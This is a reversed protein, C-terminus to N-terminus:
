FNFVDLKGDAISFIEDSNNAIFSRDHSIFFFGGPFNELLEDLVELSEIDLHNTPEDMFLFEVKSLIAKVIAARMLEGRSLESIKRMVTERRLKAAGLFQRVTTEDTDEFGFNDILIEYTFLESVTQPIYLYKIDGNLSVTGKEVKLDDLICRMFTTKGSGNPGILAVRDKTRLEFSADEIIKKEGYSFSIDRVMVMNRDVVEYKPFALNLKKEVFPKTDRLKEVEKEKRHQASLARKMMKAAQAGIHGRDAGKTGVGFKEKERSNSWNRRRVVEAELRKIKKGIDEANKKRTEFDWELFDILNSYGGSVEVSNGRDIYVTSDAINDIFQRDHSIILYSKGQKKGETIINELYIRMSIDLHNTPEDMIFFNSNSLQMKAIELFRKQGQSFESVRKELMKEDYEYRNMFNIIKSEFEYGNKWCYEDILESYVPDDPETSVLKGYIEQVAEDAGLLYNMATIEREEFEQNMVCIETEPDFNVTGDTPILEGTICKVFTSKGCGNPGVVAKAQGRSININMNDLVVNEVFIKSLNKVNLM